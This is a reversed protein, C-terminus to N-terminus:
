IYFMTEGLDAAIELSPEDTSREFQRKEAPNYIHRNYCRARDAALDAYYAAPCVGVSRTARGFLFCLNHTMQAIDQLRYKNENSLVVYHTPRATGKIANQSILFFDQGRGYTIDTTVLTGPLPNPNKDNILLATSTQQHRYLRTHHRKVACILLIPPPNVAARSGTGPNGHQQVFQILAAEIKPLEKTRCMEFQGESLGDRYVILKDPIRHLGKYDYYAKLRKYVLEKLDLVQENAQKKKGDKRNEDKPLPYNASFTVPWQAFDVDVSGVVAAISPSDILASSGPHTVDIGIIMTRDTLIRGKNFLRQNVSTTSLKLNAKMTLNSHLAPSPNPLNWDKVHCITAIGVMQDAARKIASYLEINKSPLLVLVLSSGAAKEQALRKRITDYQQDLKTMDFIGPLPNHPLRLHSGGLDDVRCRYNNLGHFGLANAFTDRFRTLAVPPSRQNDAAYLDLCTWTRNRPAAPRFYETKIINWSGLRRGQANVRSNRYEVAPLDLRTVPVKLMQDELQLDFELAGGERADRGLFLLRGYYQILNKNQDPNRIAGTPLELTNKNIQGPIFLLRAAPMTMAHEGEGLQVVDDAQTLNWKYMRRFYQSVTETTQSGPTTMTCSTATPRRGPISARALKTVRGYHNPEAGEYHTWVRLGQLFRSLERSRGENWLGGPAHKATWASILGQVNDDPDGRRYFIASSTNINLNLRGQPSAVARVSRAFGALSDLGGGQLGQPPGTESTCTVAGNPGTEIYTIGYFKTGTQTTLTPDLVELKENYGPFRMQYPRYSFVINLATITDEEDCYNERNVSANGEKLFHLLQTLSLVKPGTIVVEFKEPDPDPGKLYEDFYKIPITLPVGDQKPLRGGAIIQTSYNTALPIKPNANKLRDMLLWVIRRKKQRGIGDGTKNKKAKKPDQLKPDSQKPIKKFELDYRYLDKYEGIIIGYHNALLTQSPNVTPQQTRDLADSMSQMNLSSQQQSAAMGGTDRATPPPGHNLVRNRNSSLNQQPTSPNGTHNQQPTSTSSTSPPETTASMPASGPQYETARPNLTRDSQSGASTPPFGTQPNMANSPPPNQQSQVNRPTSGVQRPPAPSLGAAAKAYSFPPKSM